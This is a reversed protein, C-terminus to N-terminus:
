RRWRHFGDLLSLQWSKVQERRWAGAALKVAESGTPYPLLTGLIANLGLRRHMALAFMAILEGANHGVVTAGLIRDRGPETLIKVFGRNVGEAVFRDLGSLDYRTLAYATGRERADRESLGIVAVEPDTYVTRPVLDLAARRRVLPGFLANVAAYWAQHSAAHTFRLPGVVDGCGYVTPCDSRLYEDLRISGDTELGIGLRELGLGATVPRRGTALLVSDFYRQESGESLELHAYHGREDTGFRTVQASHYWRVGETSLAAGLAASVDTDGQPLPREHMNVVSVESGLRACAQALECGIAGAGLVLLRSPLEPLEWFSDSTVWPVSDLGSIPPVLPEGGTALVIRRTSLVRDGVRVEWPSRLEAVGSICEVGLSEYREPSDHPEITAIARQVRAQVSSWDVGPTVPRLGFSEAMRMQQAVAASKLLAKSPVCGRWLCDGGMRDREILVVRAKLTAAILATVLGASGAGIVVLNYDYRRPRRHGQLLRRGRLGGLVRRMLMPFVGILVFSGILAPSLVQEASFSSIDALQAAINLYVATGPLMGLQSIWYFRWVPMRTFGFVLNILFLPFLPVLRLAFLYFAGEREVGKDITAIQQAFRSSVWDRLVLRSLLMALASGFSSAFSVMLLSQWFGFLVGGLVTLVLAGPVSTALVLTYIVCYVARSFIPRDSVLARLETLHAALVSVNLYAGLDFTYWSVGLAIALVLVVLVRM